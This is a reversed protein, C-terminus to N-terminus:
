VVVGSGAIKFLIGCVQKGERKDGTPVVGSRSSPFGGPVEWPIHKAAGGNAFSFPCLGGEASLRLGRVEMLVSEKVM